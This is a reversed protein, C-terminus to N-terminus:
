DCPRVPGSGAPCPALADDIRIQGCPLTPLSDTSAVYGGVPAVTLGSDFRQGTAASVSGGNDILEPGVANHRLGLGNSEEVAYGGVYGTHAPTSVASTGFSGVSAATTRLQPYKKELKQAIRRGQGSSRLSPLVPRISSLMVNLLPEPTVSLASQIVYNGYVDRLLEGVSRSDALERVMRERDEATCLQLCREVVNGM